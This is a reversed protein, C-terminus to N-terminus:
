DWDGLLVRRLLGDINDWEQQNVSKEFEVKLNESLPALLAQYFPSDLLSRLSSIDRNSIATIFAQFQSSNNNLLQLVYSIRAQRNVQRISTYYVIIGGIVAGILGSLLAVLLNFLIEIELVM